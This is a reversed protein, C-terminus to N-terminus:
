KEKEKTRHIMVAGLASEEERLPRDINSWTRAQWSWRRDIEASLSWSLFARVAVLLGLVAVNQVTPDLTVTRIVDAAVLLELWVLLSKGLQHKYSESGGKDGLQFLYRVTGRQVAVIVVASVIVIVALLEIVLASWEIILHFTEIVHINVM